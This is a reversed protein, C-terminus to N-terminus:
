ATVATKQDISDAVEHWASGLQMVLDHVPGVLSADGKVKASIVQSVMWSYIRALDGAGAWANGDLTCVLETFIEIAHELKADADDRRGALLATRGQGLDRALRDYLLCLLRAPTATAVTEEMYWTQAAQLTM